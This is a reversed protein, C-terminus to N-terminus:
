SLQELEEITIEVEDYSIIEPEDVTQYEFDEEDESEQGDRLAIREKRFKESLHELELLKAEWEQQKDLRDKMKKSASRRFIDEDQRKFDDWYKKKLNKMIESKQEENLLSPPRPRWQFSFLCQKTRGASNGKYDQQAIKEGQFNYMVWGNDTAAGFEEEPNLESVVTSVVFRGSPDWMVESAGEHSQKKDKMSETDFFTRDGNQHALCLHRGAPSWNVSEVQHYKPSPQLTEKPEGGSNFDFIRIHYDGFDAKQLVCLRASTPEWKFDEVKQKGLDINMRPIDSVNCNFITMSFKNIQNKIMISQIRAKRQSRREKKPLRQVSGADM